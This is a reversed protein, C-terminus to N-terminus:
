FWASELTRSIWKDNSLWMVNIEYMVVNIELVKWPNELGMPVRCPLKQLEKTLQHLFGRGVSPLVEYGM